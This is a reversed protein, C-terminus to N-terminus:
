SETWLWSMETSGYRSDNDPNVNTEGGGRLKFIFTRLNELLVTGIPRELNSVTFPAGSCPEGPKLDNWNWKQPHVYTWEPCFNPM